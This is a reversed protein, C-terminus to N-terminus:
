IVTSYKKPLNEFTKLLADENDWKIRKERTGYTKITNGFSKDFNTGINWYYEFKRDYKSPSAYKKRLEKLPPVQADMDVIFRDEYDLPSIAWVNTTLSFFALM